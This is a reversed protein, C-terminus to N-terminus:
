TSHQHIVIGDLDRFAWLVPETLQPMIDYAMGSDFAKVLLDSIIDVSILGTTPLGMRQYFEKASIEKLVKYRNQDDMYRDLILFHGQSREVEDEAPLGGSLEVWPKGAEELQQLIARIEEVLTM